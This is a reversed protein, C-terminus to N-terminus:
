LMELPNPSVSHSADSATPSRPIRQLSIQLAFGACASGVLGADDSRPTGIANRGRRMASVIARAAIM